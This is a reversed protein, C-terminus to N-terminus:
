VTHCKSKTSVQEARGFLLDLWGVWKRVTLTILLALILRSLHIVIRLSCGLRHAISCGRGDFVWSGISDLRDLIVSRVLLVVGVLFLSPCSHSVNASLLWILLCIVRGIIASPITWRFFLLPWVHHDFARLLQFIRWGGREFRERRLQMTTPLLLGELKRANLRAMTLLRPSTLKLRWCISPDM